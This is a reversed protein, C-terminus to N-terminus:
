VPLLAKSLGGHSESSDAVEMSPQSIVAVACLRAMGLLGLPSLVTLVSPGARPM